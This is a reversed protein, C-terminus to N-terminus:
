PSEFTEQEKLNWKFSFGFSLLHSIVFDKITRHLYM